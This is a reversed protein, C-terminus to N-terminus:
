RGAPGVAAGPAELQVESVPVLGVPGSGAGSRELALPLLGAALLLMAACMAVTLGLCVLRYTPLLRDSQAGTTTLM